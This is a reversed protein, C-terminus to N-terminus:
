LTIDRRKSDPLVVTPLKVVIQEAAHAQSVSTDTNKDPKIKPLIKNLEKELDDLVANIQKRRDSFNGIKEDKDRMLDYIMDNAKWMLSSAKSRIEDQKIKDSLIGEKIDALLKPFNEELISSIQESLENEEGDLKENTSEWLNDITAGSAVLDVSHLKDIDVISEKGTEEVFVKVRSNVSNGVKAPQMMAIDQVLDWYSERVFLDAFVQEGNRRPTAYIGVWDKLDRVGDRDKIEQKSPHNLFCKVGEALRTLSDVAKDTYSYDNDSDKKGFICVNKVIHNDSDINGEKVSAMPNSFEEVIDRYRMGLGMPKFLHLKIKEEKKEM